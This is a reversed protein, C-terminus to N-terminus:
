SASPLLKMLRNELIDVLQEPKFKRWPVDNYTPGFHLYRNIGAANWEHVVHERLNLAIVWGGEDIIDDYWEEYYDEDGAHLNLVNEGILVFKTVGNRILCDVIDRKLFMIDNGICDNWEGIFELIAFSEDYDCYLIKTYLTPSGFDDWQPHIYYNYICASYGFENYIRGYFPSRDDEEACYHDRWNYFPEIEHM